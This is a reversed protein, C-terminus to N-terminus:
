GWLRRKLERAYLFREAQANTIIGRNEQARRSLYPMIDDLPGYPAVKNAHYGAQALPYTLHDGMGLLQGFMITGDLPSLGLTHIRELAFQLTEQNHTAVMVEARGSAVQNLLLDVARHYSRDTSSKDPHVPSAYGLAAAAKREQEMYAGRVQM